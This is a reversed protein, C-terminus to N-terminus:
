LNTNSWASTDGSEFGDMFVPNVAGLGFATKEDTHETGTFGENAVFTDAIFDVDEDDATGFIGDAGVGITGALNGGQDMIGATSPAFQATHWNGLYHGAEHATINGVGAGILDVITADGGLPFSNLSNPNTSPASLLDLLTVASEAAEFNGPDISQAIGITGIGFEAITGGVILRSVNPLGFPDVHDRSNRIEVDFIPNSAMELDTELNEEVAALIADIVDDEDAPGLGWNALFASLPSLMRPGALGGFISPDITAGDFDVFLIQTGKIDRPRFARLTLTYDGPNGQVCVFHDGALYTVHDLVAGGSPLTSAPPYLFSADQGSGMQLEGGPEYAEVLTTTGLTSAGLVDGPVLGLSFCDIDAPGSISGTVDAASDEGDGTGFGPIVQASALDDNPETEVVEITLEPAPMEAARLRGEYDMRARWYSWDVEAGDPLFSLYPNPGPAPMTALEQDTYNRQEEAVAAFALCSVATAILLVHRSRVRHSM